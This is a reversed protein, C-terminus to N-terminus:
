AATSYVKTAAMVGINEAYTTTGSGGGVGALMSALGDGMYARGLSADYNRGTMSAVAKVHGTNEALLVIVVPLILSIGYITFSPTHFPPHGLWSAHHWNYSLGKGNAGQDGVLQHFPWAVLYGIVVGLLISIRGLFGRLLVTILLISGLTIFATYGQEHINGVAVPALNLGILAVVAGTVVPPMVANVPAAGFRDILLGVVFLLAGAALIGGLAAGMGHSEAAIVPSIFAFSSGTYSPLGLRQGRGMTAAIFVLTGIGSFLITTTPPFGTLVPVVFTAGFMAIVHQMGIGITRGWSLREDPAVVETPGLHRGDGHVTWLFRRAGGGRQGGNHVAM